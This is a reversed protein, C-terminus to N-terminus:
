PRLGPPDWWRGRPPCQAVPDAPSSPLESRMQDDCGSDRYGAIRRLLALTPSDPTVARGCASPAIAYHTKPRNAGSPFSECRPFQVFCRQLTPRHFTFCCYLHQSRLLLVIRESRQHTLHQLPEALIRIALAQRAGGITHLLGQAEQRAAIVRVHFFDHVAREEGHLVVFHNDHLVD